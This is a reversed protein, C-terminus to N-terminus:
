QIWHKLHFCESWLSIKGGDKFQVVRLIWGNTCSFIWCSNTVEREVIPKQFYIIMWELKWTIEPLMEDQVADWLTYLRCSSLFLWTLFQLWGGSQKWTNHSVLRALLVITVSSPGPIETFNATRTPVLQISVWTMTHHMSLLIVASLHHDAAALNLLPWNQLSTRNSHRTSTQWTIVTM